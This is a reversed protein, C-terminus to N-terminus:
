YSLLSGKARIKQQVIRLMVGNPACIIVQGNLSIKGSKVCTKDPCTSESIFAQGNEIVVLLNGEKTSIPILGDKSMPWVIREERSIIELKLDRNLALDVQSQIFYLLFPVLVALAIILHIRKM